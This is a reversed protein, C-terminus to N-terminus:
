PAMELITQNKTLTGAGQKGTVIWRTEIKEFGSFHQFLNVTISPPRDGDCRWEYHLHVDQHNDHADADHQHAHHDDHEHSEHAREADSFPMDVDAKHIVCDPMLGIVTAPNKLNKNLQQVQQRHKTNQPKHEFGLLNAAPTEIEVLLQGADYVVTMSALGHTHAASNHREQSVSFQGYLLGYILVCFGLKCKM